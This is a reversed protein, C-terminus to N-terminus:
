TLQRKWRVQKQFLLIGLSFFAGLPFYLDLRALDCPLDLALHAVALVMRVQFCFTLILFDSARDLLLDALHFFYESLLSAPAPKLRHAEDYCSSFDV